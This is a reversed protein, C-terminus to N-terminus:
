LALMNSGSTTWVSSGGGGSATAWSLTGSGDTQLFQGSSGDATPLVWIQDGTLAPAEFGVYNTGEYFRLENNSGGIKINGVVELKEGPSATGIGVNGNDLVTFRGATVGVADINFRGTGGISLATQGTGTDLRVCTGSANTVQLKGITPSTTGLGLNGDASLRMKESGGIYWSHIVASPVSHWLTGSNIGISYPYNSGDGPWLIIRDGTGGLTTTQPTNFSGGSTTTSAFFKTAYTEGAIHLKYSPSATGIGINGSYNIRMIETHPNNTMFVINNNDAIITGTDYKFEIKKQTNQRKTMM